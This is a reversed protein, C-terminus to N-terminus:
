WTFSQETRTSDDWASHSESRSYWNPSFFLCSTCPEISWFAFHLSLRSGVLTVLWFKLTKLSTSPVLLPCLWASLRFTPPSTPDPSSMLLEVLVQWEIELRRSLLWLIKLILFLFQFRLWEQKMVGKGVQQVECAFYLCLSLSLSAYIFTEINDYV